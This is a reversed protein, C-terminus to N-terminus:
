LNTSPRLRPALRAKQTRGRALSDGAVRAAFTLALGWIAPRVFVGAGNRTAWLLPGLVMGLCALQTPRALEMRDVRVLGYGLLWFALGVGWPGWNMYPEAVASFGLGGFNKYNWPAALRSVWHSPPLDEVPLYVDGQWRLSLNPVVQGLAQWYTRGWRYPENEMLDITHVLPRLSGGMEQLAELPALPLESAAMARESLKTDRLERSIPIAILVAAAGGALAWGPLRVGRKTLIVLGAAVPTLAFGRYGLVFIMGAWAAGTWAVAPIRARPAAALALYFGMPTLQLSTVFFRPDYTRALRYTEFYTAETFRSFGLERIGWLLAAGGAAIAALGCYFLADNHWEGTERQARERAGGAAGSAAGWAFCGFALVLLLLAPQLSGGRVWAPIPGVAIGLAIPLVLGLHFVALVNLYVPAPSLARLRLPGLLVWNCFALCLGASLSTWREDELWLASAALLGPVLLVSALVFGSGSRRGEM